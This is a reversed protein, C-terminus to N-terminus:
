RPLTIPPSPSREMERSGHDPVAALTQNLDVCEATVPAYSNVSHAVAHSISSVVLLTIKSAFTM